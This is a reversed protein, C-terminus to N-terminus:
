PGAAALSLVEDMTGAELLEAAPFAAAILRCMGDRFVPHDDAILIRSTM